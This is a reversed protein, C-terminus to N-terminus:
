KLGGYEYFSDIVSDYCGIQKLLYESFERVAGNGGEKQCVYTAINLVQKVANAPAVSLGVKRMLVLDPLDDGMYAIQSDKLSYKKQLSNYANVKNKQGQYIDDKDLGLAVFRNTVIRSTKGTIIAIKIGLKQLIVLGLGDQVDFNKSEDGDNSIIIKGDTMVGDVDFIALRIKHSDIKNDMM